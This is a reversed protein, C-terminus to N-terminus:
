PHPIVRPVQPPLDNTPLQASEVRYVASLTTSPAAPLRIRPVVVVEEEEVAEEEEKHAPMHEKETVM